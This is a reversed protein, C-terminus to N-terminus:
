NAQFKIVYEFTIDKRFYFLIHAHCLKPNLNQIILQFYFSFFIPFFLFPLVQAHASDRKVRGM